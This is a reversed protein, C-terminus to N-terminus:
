LKIGVVKFIATAGIHKKKNYVHCRLLHMGEYVLDRSFFLRKDANQEGDYIDQHEHDDNIGGNSVEFKVKVEKIPDFLGWNSSATFKLNKQLYAQEGSILKKGDADCSITFSKGARKFRSPVVTYHSYCNIYGCFSDKDYTTYVQSNPTNNKYIKMADDNPHHQEDYHGSSILTITPKIYEISEIYTSEPNQDDDITDNLKEDTFFSRSGHHSAVLINTKLIGTKKFTPIIKDRWSIWDSDSTLLLSRDAYWISLVISNTHQIKAEAKSIEETSNLCYIEANGIRVIPKLSPAPIFVADQGFEDKLDRRLKMYHQYDDSQTTEGTQGSDWISRIKFCDNVKKLGRYHDEDRHSNVFIDIWQKKIQDSDKRLPIHQELYAIITEENDNTVNCDYLMTINNPFIILIMLGEGVDLVHFLLPEEDIGTYYGIPEPYSM